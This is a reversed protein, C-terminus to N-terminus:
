PAPAPGDELAGYVAGVVADSLEGPVGWVGALLAIVLGEDPDVWLRSGTAGAHDFQSPSGPLRGTLAGKGWGLGYVPRRTPDTEDVASATQERTMLRISPTGLVRRDDGADGRAGHLMARGFAVLDAATSWLGGGPHHLATFWRRWPATVDESEGYLSVGAGETGPMADAFSTGRMKLPELVRARLSESFTTAGDARRVLEALVFFPDSAYRYAAGPPVVLPQSSVKQLMAESTLAPDPTWPVDTMGSTHTLLHWVTIAEPDGGRPSPAPAFGPILRAVRDTLALAGEEVLQMVTTAVIPKTVSAVCFRHEPTMPEGRAGRGVASTRVEGDPGAVALVAAPLPGDTVHRAHVAFARELRREHFRPTPARGLQSRQM